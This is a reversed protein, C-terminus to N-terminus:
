IRYAPGAHAYGNTRDQVIPSDRRAGALRQLSGGWLILWHASVDVSGLIGQTTRAFLNDGYFQLYPIVQARGTATSEYAPRMWVGLEVFNNELPNSDQAFAVACPGLALGSLLASLKRPFRWPLTKM